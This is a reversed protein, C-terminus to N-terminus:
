LCPDGGFPWLVPKLVVVTHNESNGQQRNNDVEGCNKMESKITHIHQRWRKSLPKDINNIKRL